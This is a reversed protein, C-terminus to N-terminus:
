EEMGDDEVDGIFGSILLDLKNYNGSDGVMPNYHTALMSALEGKARHWAMQRMVRVERSDSM